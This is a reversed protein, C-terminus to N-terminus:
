RPTSDPSRDGGSPGAVVFERARTAETGNARVSYTFTGPTMTNAPIMDRIQACSDKELTLEMPEFEVVSEGTLTREVILPERRREGLCVLSIVATPFEPRVARDVPVVMSGKFRSDDGRLFVGAAPQLLAIETVVPGEEVRPWEAAIKGAAVLGSRTEQGVLRVEYAGPRFTMEAELVLPIGPRDVAIRGSAEERAARGFVLSMGLDWEAAIPLASGPIISQVLARFQGDQMELPVVGGLTPLRDKVSEPSAFAALLAATKRAADSLFLLQSRSHARVEDRHVEVRVPLPRDRPYAGPDFSLVYLCDSDERIRRIMKKASAGGVFADGGTDLTLAKLGDM